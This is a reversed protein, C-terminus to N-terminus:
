MFEINPIILIDGGTFIQYCSVELATVSYVELTKVNYVELTKVNYVELTTVNYVELTKVNYVELTKATYVELTKVNYVELTKVNTGKGKEFLSCVHCKTKFISFRSDDHCKTKYKENDTEIMFECNFWLIFFCTKVDTHQSLLNDLLIPVIEIITENFYVIEGLNIQSLKFKM